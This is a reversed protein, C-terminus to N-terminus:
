QMGESCVCSKHTLPQSTLPQSDLPRDRRTYFLLSDLIHTMIKTIRFCEEMGTTADRGVLVDLRLM